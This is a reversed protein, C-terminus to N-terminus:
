TTKVINTISFNILSTPENEGQKDSPYIPVHSNLFYRLVCCNTRNQKKRNKTKHICFYPIM